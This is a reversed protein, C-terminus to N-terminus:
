KEREFCHVDTEKEYFRRLQILRLVEKIVLLKIIVYKLSGRSFFRCFEFSIECLVWIGLKWM